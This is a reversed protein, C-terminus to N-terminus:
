TCSHCIGSPVLERIIRLDTWTLEMWPGVLYFFQRLSLRPKINDTASKILCFEIVQRFRSNDTCRLFDRIQSLSKM